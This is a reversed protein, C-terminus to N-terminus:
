KVPIRDQKNAASPQVSSPKGKEGKLYSEILPFDDPTLVVAVKTGPPMGWLLHLKHIGSPSSLWSYLSMAKSLKAYDVEDSIELEPEVVIFGKRLEDIFTQEFRTQDTGPKLPTLDEVICTIGLINNTYVFLNALMKPYYGRAWVLYRKRPWKEIGKFPITELDTGQKYLVPSGVGIRIPVGNIIGETVIPFLLVEGGDIPRVNGLREALSKDAVEETFCYPPLKTDAARPSSCGAAWWM